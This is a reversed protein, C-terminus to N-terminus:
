LIASSKKINKQKDLLKTLACHKISSSISLADIIGYNNIKNDILWKMKLYDKNPFSLIKDKLLM